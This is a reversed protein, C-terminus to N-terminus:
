ETYDYFEGKEMFYKTIVGSEISSREACITGAFYNGDNEPKFFTDNSFVKGQIVSYQEDYDVYGEVHIIATDSVEEAFVDLVSDLDLKFPLMLITKLYDLYTMEKVDVIVHVKDYYNDTTVDAHKGTYEMIIAYDPNVKDQDPYKYFTIETVDTYQILGKYLSFNLISTYAIIIIALTRAVALAFMGTGKLKITNNNICLFTFAIIVVMLVLTRIFYTVIM